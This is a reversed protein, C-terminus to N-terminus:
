EFGYFCHDRKDVDVIGYEVIWADKYMEAAKLMVEEHDYFVKSKGWVDYLYASLNDPQEKEFWELNELACVDAVRYAVVGGEVKEMFGVDIGARKEVDMKFNDTTWLIAISNDASM